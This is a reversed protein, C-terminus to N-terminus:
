EYKDECIPDLLFYYRKTKSYVYHMWGVAFSISLSMYLVRLFFHLQKVGIFWM